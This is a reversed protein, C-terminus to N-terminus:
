PLDAVMKIRKGQSGTREGVVAQNGLSRAGDEGMKDLAYEEPQSQGEEPNCRRTAERSEGEDLEGGADRIRKGNTNSLKLTEHLQEGLGDDDKNQSPGEDEDDFEMDSESACTDLDSTPDKEDDADSSTDGRSTNKGASYSSLVASKQGLNLQIEVLQQASLIKETAPLTRQNPDRSSLGDASGSSPDKADLTPDDNVVIKGGHEVSGISSTTSGDAAIVSSHDPSIIGNEKEDCPGSKTSNVGSRRHNGHSPLNTDSQSSQEAKAHPLRRNQGDFNFKPLLEKKSRGKKIQEEFSKGEYRKSKSTSVRGSSIGLPTMHNMVSDMHDRKRAVRNERMQFGPFKFKELTASLNMLRMLSVGEFDAPLFDSMSLSSSISSSALKGQSRYFFKFIAFPRENNQYATYSIVPIRTSNLAGMKSFRCIILANFQPAPVQPVSATTHCLDSDIREMDVDDDEGEQHKPRYNRDIKKRGITVRMITVEIQGIKKSEERKLDEDLCMGTRNFADVLDDEDKEPSSDNAMLVMKDLIAEIGVDKFVWAQEYINGDKGTM